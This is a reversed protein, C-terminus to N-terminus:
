RVLRAAGYKVTDGTPCTLKFVIDNFDRDGTPRDEWGFYMYKGPVCPRDEHNPNHSVGEGQPSCDDLTDCRYTELINLGGLDFRERGDEIITDTYHNYVDGAPPNARKAANTRANRVNYLRFSLSQGDACDPWVFATVDPKINHAVKTMQTRRAAAPGTGAYDFCYAHVENYDGAWPDVNILENPPPYLLEVTRAAIASASIPSPDDGWIASLFRPAANDRAAERAATVLIANVDVNSPVFSGNSPDFAGFVVDTAITVEGFDEPVNRNAYEVARAIALPQDQLSQVAALAASDAASQLRNKVLRSHSADVAFAGLGILVPMALAVAIAVIGTEDRGIARLNM